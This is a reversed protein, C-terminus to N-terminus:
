IVPITKPSGLLFDQVETLGPLGARGGLAGANFAAVASAFSATRVLDWRQLLGFLFGGHYADGCGTTDIVNPMQYAPQHFMRGDKSFIWSGRTGDTIVVLGPGEALFVEGAHQIKQRQTHKEAFDRATICIDTLPVLEKMEPRFRNAGGDFSVLVHSERAWEVAQMCVAWHRGNIHIMRANEIWFRPLDEPQPEGASGPHYVITREATEEQVLITALTASAGAYVKIAETNVGECAFEELIIKSRWDDGIADIMATSAGLRALAVLATAVPGGGQVAVARARQVEEHDPFHDVLNVIDLAAAGIGIVDFPGPM